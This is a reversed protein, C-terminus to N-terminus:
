WEAIHQLAMRPGFRPPRTAGLSVLRIVRGRHGRYPELLELMRADDARVEGALAWAVQNPLHYDGVSVADADGLAVLAVEAATWPGVGPLATLRLYADALSMETTEELRHAYSCAVRITDARKGEIGFRHFAWAPTTALAAPSPPVLLAGPGPAVESLTRVLRAYSRRAEVGVVKQELISPVLAEVVAASRGIRLGPLRRHLDAVVPDRPDFGDLSDAAGVLAPMAELAWEAGPGWAHATVTAGRVTLRTTAPGTPTRSARWVGDPAIRM